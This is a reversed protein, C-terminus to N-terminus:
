QLLPKEGAPGKLLPVTHSPRAVRPSLVEAKATRASQRCRDFGFSISPLLGPWAGLVYEYKLGACSMVSDIIEVEPGILRRQDKPDSYNFPPYTPTAADKVIKTAYEPYKNAV